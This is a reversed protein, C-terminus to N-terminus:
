GDGRRGTRRVYPLASRSIRPLLGPNEDVSLNEFPLLDEKMRISLSGGSRPPHFLLLLVTKRFGTRGWFVQGDHLVLYGDDALAFGPLRFGGSTCLRYAM